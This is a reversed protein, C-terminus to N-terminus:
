IAPAPLKDLELCSRFYNHLVQKPNVSNKMAKWQPEPMAFLKGKIIRPVVANRFLTGGNPEGARFHHDGDAEFVFAGLGPINVYIDVDAGDLQKEVEPVIGYPQLVEALVALMESHIASLKLAQAIVSLMDGPRLYSTILALHDPTLATTQTGEGIKAQMIAQLKKEQEAARSKKWNSLMTLLEGGWDSRPLQLLYTHHLYIQNLQSRMAEANKHADFKAAGMAKYQESVLGVILPVVRKDPTMGLSLGWAIMILQEFPAEELEEKKLLLTEILRQLLQPSKTLFNMRAFNTVLDYIAKLDYKELPRRREKDGALIEDAIRALQDKSTIVKGGTSIEHVFLQDILRGIEAPLLARMPKETVDIKTIVRAFAKVSGAEQPIVALPTKTKEPSAASFASSHAIELKLLKSDKVLDRSFRRPSAVAAPSSNQARVLADSKAGKIVGTITTAMAVPSMRPSISAIQLLRYRFEATLEKLQSAYPIVDPPLKMLGNQDAAAAFLSALSQTEISAFFQKLQLVDFVYLDRVAALMFSQFEETAPKATVKALVMLYHEPLFAARNEDWVRVCEDLTSCAKLFSTVQQQKFFLDANLPTRRGSKPTPTLTRPSTMAAAALDAAGADSGRRLRLGAFPLKSPSDPYDTKVVMRASDRATPWAAADSVHKPSELPQVSKARLQSAYTRAAGGGAAAGTPFPTAVRTVREQVPEPAPSASASGSSGSSSNSDYQYTPSQSPPRDPIVLFPPPTPTAAARSKEFASGALFSMNVKKNYISGLLLINRM